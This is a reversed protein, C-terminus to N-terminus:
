NGGRADKMEEYARKVADYNEFEQIRVIAVFPVWVTTGNSAKFEEGMDPQQGVLFYQDALRRITANVIYGGGPASDSRGDTIVALVKGKFDREVVDDNPKVGQAIALGVVVLVCGFCMTMIRTKM